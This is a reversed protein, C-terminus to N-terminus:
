TYMTIKSSVSISYGVSHLPRTNLTQFLAVSGTVYAAKVKSFM